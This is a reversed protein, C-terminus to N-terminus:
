NSLREDYQKYYLHSKVLLFFFVNYLTKHAKDVVLAIWRYNNSVDCWFKTNTRVATNVERLVLPLEDHM